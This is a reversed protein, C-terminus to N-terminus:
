HGGPGFGIPRWGLLVSHHHQMAHCLKDLQGAKLDFFQGNLSAAFDAARAGHRPDSYENLMQSDHLFAFLEVM